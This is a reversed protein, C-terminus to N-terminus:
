EHFLCDEDNTDFKCQDYFGAFETPCYPKRDGFKDVADQCSTIEGFEAHNWPFSCITGFIGPCKGDSEPGPPQPNPPVAECDIPSSSCTKLGGYKEINEPYEKLNCYTEEDFAPSGVWNGAIGYICVVNVTQGGAGYDCIAFDCGVDSTDSWMLQTFHGIMGNGPCSGYKQGGGPYSYDKIESYWGNVADRAIRPMDENIIKGSTWMAYLNEGNTHFGGLGKRDENNSHPLGQCQMSQLTKAYNTAFTALAGNWSLAGLGGAEERWKNHVCQTNIAFEDNESLSGDDQEVRKYTKQATTDYQDYAWSGNTCMVWMNPFDPNTCQCKSLDVGKVSPCNTCGALSSAGSIPGGDYCIKWDSVCWNSECQEDYVCNNHVRKVSSRISNPKVCGNGKVEEMSARLDECTNGAWHYTANSVCALVGLIVGFGRYCSLKM